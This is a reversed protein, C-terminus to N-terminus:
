GHLTIAGPRCVQTCHGCLRCAAADAVVVQSGGASFVGFPCVRLCDSCGTCRGADITVRATSTGSQTSQADGWSGSASADSSSGDVSGSSGSGGTDDQVATSARGATSGDDLMRQAASAAARGVLGGVLAAAGVAGARKLFTSRTLTSRAATQEQAAVPAAQPTPEPAAARRARAQDGGALRRVMTKVWGWHLATHLVVGAIMIFATWDHLTRWTTYEVGLATAGSSGLSLWGSPVLFVLGSIASVVFAAAIAADVVFNTMARKSVRNM